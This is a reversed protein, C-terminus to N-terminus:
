LAVDLGADASADWLDCERSRYAEETSSRVGFLLVRDPSRRRWSWGDYQNSVFDGAFDNFLAALERALLLDKQDDNGTLLLDLDVGHVAGFDRWRGAGSRVNYVM